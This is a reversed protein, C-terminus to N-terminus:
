AVEHPLLDDFSALTWVDPEDFEELRWLANQERMEDNSSLSLGNQREGKDGTSPRKDTCIANANM